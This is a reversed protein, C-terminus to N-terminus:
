SSFPIRLQDLYRWLLQPSLLSDVEHVICSRSITFSEVVKAGNITIGGDEKGGVGLFGGSVSRGVDVVGGLTVIGGSSFLKEASVAEIGVVHYAGIKQTTELNRDDSLQMRRKEGLAEFAKFNFAFITYGSEPNERLLKMVEENKSVVSFFAPYNQALFSETSTEAELVSLRRHFAAHKTQFASVMSGLVFAAFLAIFSMTNKM